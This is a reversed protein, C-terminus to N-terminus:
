SRSYIEIYYQSSSAGLQGTKKPFTLVKNNRPMEMTQQAHSISNCEDATCFSYPFVYLFCSAGKRICSMVDLKNVDVFPFIDEIRSHDAPDEDNATLQAHILAIMSVLLEM